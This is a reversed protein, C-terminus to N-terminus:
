EEDLRRARARYLAAMLTESFHDHLEAALLCDAATPDPLSLMRALAERALQAFPPGDLTLYHRVLRYLVQRQFSAWHEAHDTLAYDPEADYDALYAGGCLRAAAELAAVAEVVSGSAEARLADAYHAQLDDLDCRWLPSSVLMLRDGDEVIAARLGWRDLMMLLGTVVAGPRKRRRRGGAVSALDERAVWQDRYSVLYSLMQRLQRRGTGGGSWDAEKGDIHVRLRRLTWIYVGVQRAPPWTGHSPPFDRM